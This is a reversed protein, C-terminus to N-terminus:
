GRCVGEGHGWHPSQEPRAAGWPCVWQRSVNEATVVRLHCGHPGDWLHVLDGRKDTPGPPPGVAGVGPLASATSKVSEPFRGHGPLRPQPEPEAGPCSPCPARLPVRGPSLGQPAPLLGAEGGAGPLVQAVGDRQTPHRQVERQLLLARTLPAPRVTPVRRAAPYRIHTAPLSELQRSLFLERHRLQHKLKEPLDVM